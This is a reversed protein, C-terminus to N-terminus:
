GVHPAIRAPRPAAITVRPSRITEPGSGGLTARFTTRHSIRRLFRVACTAGLRKSGNPDGGRLLLVREGRHEPCPSVSVTIQAKGSGLRTARIRLLPAVIPTPPSQSASAGSPPPSASPCGEFPPGAIRYVDGSRSAIYLRGAADEGFSTPRNFTFGLSCDDEALGGSVSPLRLSRIDGNCYDAYLYRGYLAGLNPDPDRVVYGGIISGSCIVGKEPDVGFHEYEFVPSVFDEPGTGTCTPDVGIGGLAGERCSWGYNAGAGGVQGPGPSPAFDLEERQSQGVDAITMDGTLRDFSFRFPNRLGLAWVLDDAAPGGAFPNDAPPTYTLPPSPDPDLRLIKGRPDTPDQAADYPDLFGGDGTSLYLYGDPGFQLQGGNHIDYENHPVILVTRRAFPDEPDAPQTLEEVRIDGPDNAPGDEASYAAYLKGSIEFDPAFAISGLGREGECCLVDAELDLFDSIEDGVVSKIKGAREAVFLRSPDGPDSAVHVPQAFAGLSELSLAAAGDAAGFPALLILAALTGLLHRRV